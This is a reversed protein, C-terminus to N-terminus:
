PQGTHSNITIYRFKWNKLLRRYDEVTKYLRTWIPRDKIEQWVQANGKKSTKPLSQLRQRKIGKKETTDEVDGVLEISEM